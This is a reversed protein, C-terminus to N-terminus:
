NWPASENQSTLTRGITQAPHGILRNLSHAIHWAVQCAGRDSPTAVLGIILFDESSGVVGIEAMTENHVFMKCLYPGPHDSVFEKLKQQMLSDAAEPRGSPRSHNLASTVVAAVGMAAEEDEWYSVSVITKGSAYCYIDFTNDVGDTGPQFSYPGPFRELFSQYTFTLM